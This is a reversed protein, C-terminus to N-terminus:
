NVSVLTITDDDAIEINFSNSGPNKKEATINYTIGDFEGLGAIKGINYVAKKNSALTACNDGFVLKGNIKVEKFIVDEGVLGALLGFSSDKPVDM